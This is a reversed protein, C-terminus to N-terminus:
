KTLIMKRTEVLNGSNLTYFYVGSSLNSADFTVEHSGAGVLGNVLTAVKQGAMNYVALEANATEAMEFSISTTPNFPNPYNAGLGFGSALDATDGTRTTLCVTGVMFDEGVGDDAFSGAFGSYDLCLEDTYAVLSSLNSITFEADPGIMHPGQNGPLPAGFSFPLLGGNIWTYVGCGAINNFASVGSIIDLSGNQDLDLAICISETGMLGPLDVGGNGLLWADTSGEFGDGDADGAIGHFDLGIHLADNAADLLFVVNIVEWGSITLPPAQGPVGVDYNDGNAVVDPHTFDAPVSGTFTLASAGGAITTVVLASRFLHASLDRISM